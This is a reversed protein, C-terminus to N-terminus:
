NRLQMQCHDPMNKHVSIIWGGRPCLAGGHAHNDPEFHGNHAYYIPTAGAFAYLVQTHMNMTNLGRSPKPCRRTSPYIDINHTCPFISWGGHPRVAGAHAYKYCLIAVPEWLVWPWRLVCPSPQCHDFPFTIGYVYMCPYISLYFCFM